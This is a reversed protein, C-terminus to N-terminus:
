YPVPNAKSGKQRSIRKCKAAIQYRVGSQSRADIEKQSLFGRVGANSNPDVISLVFFSPYYVFEDVGFQQLVTNM